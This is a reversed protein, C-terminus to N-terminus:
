APPTTRQPPPVTTKPPPPPNTTQPPPPVVTTRPPPAVTTKAVPPETYPVATPAPAVVKFQPQPDLLQGNYRIEIKYSGEGPKDLSVFLNGKDKDFTATKPTQPNNNSILTVEVKDGVKAFEYVVFAYVEDGVTFSDAAPVSGDPAATNQRSTSIAYVALPPPANTATPAATTATPAVTPTAAVTATAAETTVVAATTVAATTPAVTTAASTTAASTATATVAAIAATPTTKTDTKSGGSLVLFLVAGVVLLAAIGGIIAFLAKNNNSRPASSPLLPGPMYTTPPSPPGPVFNTPPPPMTGRSPTDMVPPPPQTFAAQTRAYGPVPPTIQPKSIAETPRDAQPVVPLSPQTQPRTPTPPSAIYTNDTPFAGTGQATVQYAGEALVAQFARALDGAKQYRDEPKKALAKEIVSQVAPPMLLGGQAKEAISPIPKMMHGMMVQETTGSYPLQGTLMQFLVCGLAYVDTTTGVVGNLQEPSMYSLTGMVGTASNASAAGLVKAIGFDALLLRDDEARLLMNQPKIDRHVINRRHAYDLADAAQKLYHYADQPSLRKEQRLRSHLTGGEVYPMVLYATEDAHGFDHISLINPHDLGAVSQAEREFRALFSEDETLEANLIKVAVKRKLLQDTALFVQAFGGQGIKKDLRYRTNIVSNETIM